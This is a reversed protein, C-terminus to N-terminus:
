VRIARRTARSIWVAFGWAVLGAILGVVLDGGLAAALRVGVRGQSPDFFHTKLFPFLASLVEALFVWFRWVWGIVLAPVLLQRATTLGLRPGVGGLYFGCMLVAVTSSWASTNQAPVGMAETWFRFVVLAGLLAGPGVTVPWRWLVYITAMMIFVVVAVIGIEVLHGTLHRGLHSWNGYDEKEAFHSRELRFVAAVVTALMIWGQSWAALIVSPLILQVIRTVGRLPAVAGLYLAVLFVGAMSSFVRTANPPAGAIELVFRVVVVLALFILGGRLWRGYEPRSAEAAPSEPSM